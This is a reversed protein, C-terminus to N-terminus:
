RKRVKMGRYASSGTFNEVTGGHGSTGKATALSRMLRKPTGPQPSPDYKPNPNDTFNEAAPSMRWNTTGGQKAYTVGPGGQAGTFPASLRRVSGKSRTRKTLVDPDHKSGSLAQGFHPTKLKQNNNDVRSAKVIRL